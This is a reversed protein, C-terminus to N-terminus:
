AVKTKVLVSPLRALQAKGIQTVKPLGGVQGVKGPNDHGTEGSSTYNVLSANYAFSNYVCGGDHIWPATVRGFTGLTNPRPSRESVPLVVETEGKDKINGTKDKM